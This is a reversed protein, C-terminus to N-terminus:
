YVALILISALVLISALILISGTDTSHCYAWYGTGPISNRGVLYAMARYGEGESRELGNTGCAVFFRVKNHPTLFQDLATILVVRDTIILIAQKAWILVWVIRVIGSMLPESIYLTNQKAKPRLIDPVLHTTHFIFTLNILSKM